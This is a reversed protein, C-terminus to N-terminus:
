NQYILTDQFHHLIAVYDCHLVFPFDYTAYRITGNRIVQLSGYAGCWLVNQYIKRGM